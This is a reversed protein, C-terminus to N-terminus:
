ALQIMQWSSTASTLLINNFAPLIMIVMDILFSISLHLAWLSSFGIFNAEHLQKNVPSLYIYM